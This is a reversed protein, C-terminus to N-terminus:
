QGPLENREQLKRVAEKGESAIRSEAAVEEKTPALFIGTKPYFLQWGAGDQDNWAIQSWDLLGLAQLEAWVAALASGVPSQCVTLLYFSTNLPCIAHCSEVIAGTAEVRKQLLRGLLFTAWRNERPFLSALPGDGPIALRVGMISENSDM